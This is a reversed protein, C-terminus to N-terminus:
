TRSQYARQLVRWRELPSPRCTGAEPLVLHSAAAPRRAAAAMAVREAFSRSTAAGERVIRQIEPLIV